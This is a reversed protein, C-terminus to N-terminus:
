QVPLSIADTCCSCLMMGDQWLVKVRTSCCDNTKFAATLKYVDTGKIELYMEEEATNTLLIKKTNDATLPLPITRAADAFLKIDNITYRPNAGFVLDGGTSRDVLRFDFYSWFAFCRIGSCDLKPEECNKAKRCSFFLLTSVFVAIVVRM